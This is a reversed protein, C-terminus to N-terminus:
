NNEISRQLSLSNVIDVGCHKKILATRAADAISLNIAEEVIRSKLNASADTLIRNLESVTEETLLKKIDVDVVAPTEVLQEKIEEDNTIVKIAGARVMARCGPDYNFEEFVEPSLPCSQGPTLDRRFRVNALNIGVKYSSLNKITVKDSM